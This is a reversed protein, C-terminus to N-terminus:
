RKDRIDINVASSPIGELNFPPIYELSASARDQIYLPGLGLRLAEGVVSDYEYSTLRRNIEAHQHAQHVPTYQSMLSLIYGERPLNRALWGLLSISDHRAGPMVLHRIITGSQLTGESAFQLRGAQGVMAKIAETATRFYDPCRSYKWALENSMYKLDPLFIDVYPQLAQVVELKEYGSCNYVVPIYLEDRISNLAPLVWPLYPTATVLNLNHAGNAQLVLCIKALDPISVAQGWGENSIHYNQCFCCRLNCGSFFITGSGRSGSLCPEEGSHLAARALKISDPCGCFGIGQSRDIGCERPCWNCNQISLGQICDDEDQDISIARM